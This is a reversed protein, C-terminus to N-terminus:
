SAYEAVIFDHKIISFILAKVANSVMFAEKLISTIVRFGVSGFCTFSCFFPAFFVGFFSFGLIKFIVFVFADSSHHTVGNSVSLQYFLRAFDTARLTENM